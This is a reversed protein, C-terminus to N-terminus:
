WAVSVTQKLEGFTCLTWGSASAQRWRGASIRKWCCWRSGTIRRSIEVCNKARASQANRGCPQDARGRRCPRSSVERGSSPRPISLEGLITRRASSRLELFKLATCCPRSSFLIALSRSRDVRICSLSWGTRAICNASNGAHAYVRMTSWIRIRIITSFISWTVVAPSM